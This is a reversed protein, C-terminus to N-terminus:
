PQRRGRQLSLGHHQVRSTSRMSYKVDDSVNNRLDLIHRQTQMVLETADDDEGMVRKNAKPWDVLMKERQTEVGHRGRGGAIAM